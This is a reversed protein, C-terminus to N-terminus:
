PNSTHLIKKAEKYIADAIIAHYALDPHIAGTLMETCADQVQWRDPCKRTALKMISDNITNFWRNREFSYALWESPKIGKWKPNGDVNEERYPFEFTEPASKGNDLACIGHKKTVGEELSVIKWGFEKENKKIVDQLNKIVLKSIKNAEIESISMDLRDDFNEKVSQMILGLFFWKPLWKLDPIEPDILFKGGQAGLSNLEPKTTTLEYNSNKNWDQDCNEILNPYNTQIVINPKQLNIFGRSELEQNLNRYLSKLSSEIYNKANEPSEYVRMLNMVTKLADPLPITINPIIQFTPSFANLILGGFGVDNGGISLLILDPKRFNPDSPNECNKKTDKCLFDRASDLQSQFEGLKGIPFSIQPSTLGEKIKAGSCAFSAFVVRERPHEAAYQLAVKFQYSLLSRHCTRDLWLPDDRLLTDQWGEGRSLFFNYGSGEVPVSDRHISPRDPNGEGSAFSDGLGLIVKGNVRILTEIENKSKSLPEIKVTVDEDIPIVTSYQECTDVMSEQKGITWVCYEHPPNSIKLTIEQCFAASKYKECPTAYTTKHQNNYKNWDTAGYDTVIRQLAEIHNKYEMNEEHSIGDNTKRSSFLRQYQDYASEIKNNGNKPPILASLDEGRYLFSFNSSGEKIEWTISPKAAVEGISFSFLFVYCIFCFKSFINM